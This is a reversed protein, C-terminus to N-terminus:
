TCWTPGSRTPRSIRWRGSTAPQRALIAHFQLGSLASATVQHWSGTYRFVSDEGASVAGIAWMNSPSLASAYAIGDKTATPSKTWSRGKYHWTGFGPAAGPGGFVWVNSPSFATVGTLEGFGSFRKASTSWSTGNFHLIYGGQDSVAWVDSASPASAADIASALGGPLKSAKWSGGQWHEAAPTGSGTGSLDTGGLAWANRAGSATVAFYARSPIRATSIASSSGGAQAPPLRRRSPRASRSFPPRCAPAFVFTVKM